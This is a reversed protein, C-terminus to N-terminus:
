VLYEKNFYGEKILWEICDIIAKYLNDGFFQCLDFSRNEYFVSNGDISLHYLMEEIHDKIIDPMMEILRHLSWAPIDQPRKHNSWPAAYIYHGGSMSIWVMDATEPKLGLEVIRRSQEISSCIQSNFKTEM